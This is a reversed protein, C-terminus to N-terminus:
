FVFFIISMLDVFCYLIMNAAVSVYSVNFGLFYFVWTPVQVCVLYFIFYALSWWIFFFSLLSVLRLSFIFNYFSALFPAQADNELGAVWNFFSPIIKVCWWDRYIDCLLDFVLFSVFLFYPWEITNRRFNDDWCDWGDFPEDFFSFIPFVFYLPFFLFALRNALSWLFFCVEIRTHTKKLIYEAETVYIRDSAAWSLFYFPRTFLNIIALGYGILGTLVSTLIIPISWFYFWLDFITKSCFNFIVTQPRIRPGGIQSLFLFFLYKLKTFYVRYAGLCFSGFYGVSMFFFNFLLVWALLYLPSLIELQSWFCTYFFFGVYVAATKSFIVSLSPAM